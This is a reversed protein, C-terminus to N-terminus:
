LSATFIDEYQPEVAASNINEATVKAVLAAVSNPLNEQVLVVALKTQNHNGADVGCDM